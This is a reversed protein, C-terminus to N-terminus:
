LVEKKRIKQIPVLRGLLLLVQSEELFSLGIDWEMEEM